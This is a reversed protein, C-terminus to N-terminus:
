LVLEVTLLHVCEVLVDPLLFSDHLEMELCGGDVVSVAQDLAVSTRLVGEPALNAVQSVVLVRCVRRGHLPICDERVIVHSIARSQLMSSM